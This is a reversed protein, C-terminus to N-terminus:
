AKAPYVFGSVMPLRNAIAVAAVAVLGIVALQKWSFGM